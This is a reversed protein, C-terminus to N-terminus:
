NKTEYKKEGVIINTYYTNNCKKKIFLDYSM